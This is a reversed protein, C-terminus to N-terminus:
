YGVAKLLNDMHQYLYVGAWSFWVTVAFLLVSLRCESSADGDDSGHPLFFFALLVMGFLAFVFMTIMIAILMIDGTSSFRVLNIM